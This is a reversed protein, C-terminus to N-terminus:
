LAVTNEMAGAFCRCLSVISISMGILLLILLTKTSDAFLKEQIKCIGICPCIELVVLIPYFNEGVLEM